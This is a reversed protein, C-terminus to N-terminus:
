EGRMGCEARELREVQEVRRARDGATTPAPGRLLSSPRNPSQVPAVRGTTAPGSTVPTAHPKQLLLLPLLLLLMAVIDFASLALARLCAFSSYAPVLVLTNTHLAGKM